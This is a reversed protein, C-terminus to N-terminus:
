SLRDGRIPRAVAALGALLLVFGLLAAKGDLAPVTTLNPAYFYAAGSDMYNTAGFAGIVTITGTTAVSYGFYQGSASALLKEAAWTGGSNAFVYAAGPGSAGAKECAGVVATSGSLAVSFGFYDDSTGDSALLDPGQQSWSGASETFYYAAGRDSAHGYAGVLAANTGAAVSGGFNDGPAGDAAAIVAQQSWTGGTATMAYALGTAGNAMPAGIIATTAGPDLAVGYGFSEGALPGLIEQQSLWTGGQNVVSYVAGTGAAMGPAGIIAQSGQLALACGYCDNPNTDTSTFEQQQTWVSGARSFAYVYGQAKGAASVLATNGSVAVTYGFEDNASGDTATLEAQQTWTGGTQVYVYAAGKAGNDNLAGVVATTGDVAVSYGFFADSSGSFSTQLVFQPNGGAKADSSAGVAALLCL